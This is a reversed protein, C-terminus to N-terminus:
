ATFAARSESTVSARLGALSVIARYEFHALTVLSVSLYRVAEYQTGM